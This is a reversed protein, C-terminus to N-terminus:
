RIGTIVPASSRELYGFVTGISCPNQQGAIGIDFGNDLCNVLPLDNVIDSFRTTRCEFSGISGPLIHDAKQFIVGHKKAM